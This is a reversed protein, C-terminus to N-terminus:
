VAILSMYITQNNSWGFNTLKAQGNTLFDDVDSTQWLGQGNNCDFLYYGSDINAAAIYHGQSLEILAYGKNVAVFRLAFGISQFTKSGARQLGADTINALVRQDGTKRIWNKAFMIACRGQDPKTLEPRMKRMNSIWVTSQAACTGINEDLTKQSLNASGKKYTMVTGISNTTTYILEM